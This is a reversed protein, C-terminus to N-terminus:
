FHTHNRMDSKAGRCTMGTKEGRRTRLDHTSIKSPHPPKPPKPKARPTPLLPNEESKKYLSIYVLFFFFHQFIQKLHLFYKKKVVLPPILEQVSIQRHFTILSLVSSTSARSSSLSFPQSNVSIEQEKSQELWSNIENKIQLFFFVKQARKKLSNVQTGCCQKFFFNFFYLHSISLGCSTKLINKDQLM